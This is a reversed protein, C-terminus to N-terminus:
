QGCGGATAPATTTTTMGFGASPSASSLKTQCEVPATEFASCVATLLSASDRGSSAEVGNIILTPSGQVGYKTNEAQFITFPPYSSGWTDQKAFTETVKYQNDTATVCTSLKIKDVGTSTVCADSNAEGLFCKLYPLLKDNQEKSICYQNLEEKLEKEGHMAYDVFKLQFDIKSGLTEVVPIIGKEIQTGYPCYSMVFLEVVPKVAKVAVPKETPTTAPTETKPTAKIKAKVEEINMITPFFEKGDISMRSNIVEGGDIVIDLDYLGSIQNKVTVKVNANDVLVSVFDEAITKIKDAGLDNKAFEKKPEVPKVVPKVVPKKVVPKAPVKKVVTKVNTKKIIVPAKAPVNIKTTAAFTAGGALLLAIALVSIVIKKM